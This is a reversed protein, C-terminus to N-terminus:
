EGVVSSGNRITRNVRDKRLSTPTQMAERLVAPPSVTIECAWMMVPYSPRVSSQVKEGTSHITIGEALSDPRYAYSKAREM